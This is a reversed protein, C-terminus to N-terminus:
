PGFGPGPGMDPSAVGHTARGRTENNISSYIGLFLNYYRNFSTYVHIRHLVSHLDSPKPVNVNETCADTFINFEVLGFM